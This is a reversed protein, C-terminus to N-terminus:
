WEPNNCKLTTRLADQGIVIKPKSGCWECNIFRIERFATRFLVIFNAYIM